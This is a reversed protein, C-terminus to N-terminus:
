LFSTCLESYSRHSPCGSLCEGMCVFVLRCSVWLCIGVPLCCTVCRPVWVNFCETVSLPMSFFLCDEVRNNVSGGSKSKKWPCHDPLKFSLVAINKKMQCSSISYLSLAPFFKAEFSPIWVNKMLFHPRFFAKEPFISRTPVQFFFARAKERIDESANWHSFSSYILKAIICM